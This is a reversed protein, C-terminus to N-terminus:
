GPQNRLYAFPTSFADRGRRIFYSLLSRSSPASNRTRVIWRCALCRGVLLDTWHKLAVYDLGTDTDRKLDVPWDSLEGQLSVVNPRETNRSATITRGRMDFELSFTWGQLEPARLTSNEFGSGLCFHIVELLSSKGSGNRSSEAHRSTGSLWCSMSAGALSSTRSRTETRAFLM